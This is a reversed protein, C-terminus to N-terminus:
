VMGKLPIQFFQTRDATIVSLNVHLLTKLADRTSVREPLIGTTRNIALNFTPPGAM